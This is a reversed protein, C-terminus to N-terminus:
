DALITTTPLFQTDTFPKDLSVIHKEEDNFPDQSVVKNLIVSLKGFFEFEDEFHPALADLIAEVNVQPLQDPSPRRLTSLAQAEL